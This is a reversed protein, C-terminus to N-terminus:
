GLVSLRGAVFGAAAAEGPTGTGRPGIEGALTQLDALLRSM